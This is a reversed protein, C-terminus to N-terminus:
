LYFISRGAKLRTHLELLVCFQRHHVTRLRTAQLRYRRYIPHISRFLHCFFVNIPQVNDHQSINLTEIGIIFANTRFSVLANRQIEKAIHTSSRVGIWTRKGCTLQISLCSLWITASASIFYLIFSSNIYSSHRREDIPVHEM